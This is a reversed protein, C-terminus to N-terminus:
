IPLQQQEVLVVVHQRYDIVQVGKKLNCEACLPQINDISNSGGLSLPIVHDAHLAKSQGCRLCIFGYKAKLERWEQQTFHTNAQQTRRKRKREREKDPNRHRNRSRKSQRNKEREANKVQWLMTNLNLRRKNKEYYAKFYKAECEKCKSRLSGEPNPRGKKGYESYPKEEHCIRCPKTKQDGSMEDRCTNM